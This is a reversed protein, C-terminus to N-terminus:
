IQRKGEQGVLDALRMATRHLSLSPSDGAHKDIPSQMDNFPREFALEILM